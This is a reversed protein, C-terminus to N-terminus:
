IWSICTSDLGHFWISSNLSETQGRQWHIHESLFFSLSHHRVVSFCRWWCRYWENNLPIFCPTVWHRKDWTAHGLYLSEGKIACTPTRTWADVYALKSVKKPSNGNLRRVKHKIWVRSYLLLTRALESRDSYAFPDCICLCAHVVCAM